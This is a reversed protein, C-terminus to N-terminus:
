GETGFIGKLLSGIGGAGGLFNSFDSPQAYSYGQTAVPLDQLLSQQFQVQKYPYDREEAFQARDAAIGESAIGRQTAGAGLQAQLNRLGIDNEGRYADMAGRLSDLGYGAGFQRSQEGHQQAQLGRNQETNFQDRAQQYSQDYGRGTIDAMNRLLNRQSESDMIAQRGGGYAGAKSMRASNQLQQIQAQRQAEALQPELAGATYPNMYQNAAATDFTGSTFNTPSYSQDQMTNAINGMGTPAALNALGSFANTQLDSEGASLPGTYATYPLESLAAGKGLMDTVYPGAWNSLSSEKGLLQGANPDVYGGADFKRM